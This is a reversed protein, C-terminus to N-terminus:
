PPPVALRSGSGGAGPLQTSLSPARYWPGAAWAAPPPTKPVTGVPRVPGWRACWSWRNRISEAAWPRRGSRSKNPARGAAFHVPGTLITAM